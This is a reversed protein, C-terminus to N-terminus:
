ITCETAEFATGERLFAQNCARDQFSSIEEVRFEQLSDPLGLDLVLSPNVWCGRSAGVEDGGPSPPPPHSSLLLSAPRWCSDMQSVKLGSAKDPLCHNLM